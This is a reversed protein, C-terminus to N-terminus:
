LMGFGEFRLDINPAGISTRAFIKMRARKNLETKNSCQGLSALVIAFWIALCAILLIGYNTPIGLWGIKEEKTSFTYHNQKCMLLSRRM